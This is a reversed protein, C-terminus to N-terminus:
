IHITAIVPLHDSAPTTVVPVFTDIKQVRDALVHDYVLSHSVHPPICCTNKSTNGVTYQRKFPTINKPFNTNFDGAIIVRYDPNQSLYKVEILKILEEQDHHPFHANVFIIKQNDFFLILIPRDGYNNKSLKYNKNHKYEDRLADCSSKIRKDANEKFISKNWFSAVEANGSKAVAYSMNKLLSSLEIINQWEAAEQLGILDFPGNKTISHAVNKQCVQPSAMTPCLSWGPKGTMSEWSINYTLVRITKLLNNNPSSSSANNNPSSSSPLKPISLKNKVYLSNINNFTVKFNNLYYGCYILLKMYIKEEEIFAAPSCEMPSTGGGSRSMGFHNPFNISSIVPQHYFSDLKPLKYDINNYYDELTVDSVIIRDYLSNPKGDISKDKILKNFVTSIDIKQGDPKTLYLLNPELVFKPIIVALIDSFQINEGLHLQINCWTAYRDDLIQPDLGLKYNNQVKQFREQCMGPFEFYPSNKIDLHRFNYNLAECVLLYQLFPDKQFDFGINEWLDYFYPSKIIEGNFNVGKSIKEWFRPKLIFKIDGYMSDLGYRFQAGRGVAKDQYCCRISQDYIGLIMNLFTPIQTNHTFLLNYFNGRIDNHGMIKNYIKSYDSVDKIIIDLKEFNNLQCIYNSLNQQRNDEECERNNGNCQLIKHTSLQQGLPNNYCNYLAKRNNSDCVVNDNENKACTLDIKNIKNNVVNNINNVNNSSKGIVRRNYWKINQYNVGNINQYSVNVWYWEANMLIDLIKQILSATFFDGIKIKQDVENVNFLTLHFDNNSALRSWGMKSLIDKSKELEKSHPFIMLVFQDNASYNYEINNMNNEIMLNFFDKSKINSSAKALEDVYKKPNHPLDKTEMSYGMTIHFGKWFDIGEHPLIQRLKNQTDDDPALYLLQYNM